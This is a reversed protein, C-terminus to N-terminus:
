STLFDTFLRAQIGMMATTLKKAPWFSIFSAFLLFIFCYPFHLLGLSFSLLLIKHGRCLEEACYRHQTFSHHFNFNKRKTAFVLIELNRREQEAEGRAQGYARVMQMCFGGDYLFKYVTLSKWITTACLKVHWRVYGGAPNLVLM